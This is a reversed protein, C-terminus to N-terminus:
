RIIYFHFIFYFLVLYLALNERIMGAEAAYGEPVVASVRLLPTSQRSDSRDALEKMFSAWHGGLGIDFDIVHVHMSGGDLAELVAQNATFGAFMPIPSISSFVKHAKIIQVIEFTNAPNRGPPRGSGTLMFSQLAEKFYFTARQLPKGASSRLRQNLRALIGQGLQISNTEICQALKILEDVYDIGM